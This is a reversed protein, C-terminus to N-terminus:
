SLDKGIFGVKSQKGVDPNSSGDHEQYFTSASFGLQWKGQNERGGPNSTNSLLVRTGNIMTDCMAQSQTQDSYAEPM